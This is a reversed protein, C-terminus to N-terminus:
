FISVLSGITRNVFACRLDAINVLLCTLINHYIVGTCSYIFGQHRKKKLITLIYETWKGIEQLHKEEFSLKVWEFAYAVWSTSRVRIYTLTMVPEHNIIM